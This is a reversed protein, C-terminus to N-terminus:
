ARFSYDIENLKEELLGREVLLKRVKFAGNMSLGVHIFIILTVVSAMFVFLDYWSDRGRPQSSVVLAILFIELILWPILVITMMWCAVNAKKLNKQSIAKLGCISQTANWVMLLFSFTINGSTNGGRAYVFDSVFAITCLSALLYLWGKYFNMFCTNFGQDLDAIKMVVAQREENQHSGAQINGYQAPPQYGAPGAQANYGPYQPQQPPYQPNQIPPLTPYKNPGAQQPYANNQPNYPNPQPQHHPNM